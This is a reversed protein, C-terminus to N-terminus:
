RPPSAGLRLCVCSCRAAGWGRRGAWPPLRSAGPSSGRARGANGDGSPRELESRTLTPRHWPTDHHAHDPPPGPAFDPSPTTARLQLRDPPKRAGPRERARQAAPRPTRRYRPDLRQGHLFDDEIFKNYADFSLIQHDVYGRRAYPSIVMAPVRLGYGNGDVVPPVVHDYLGGWDDWALFIATSRWDPGRMVANILSTVYSQGPTIPMPPHESVAASPTVWTVAPLTGRRAAAYFADVPRINGLQGDNRVTDFNPLPNWIGPTKSNQRVPSCSLAAANECDPEAGNVVYYGWSVHDRHM